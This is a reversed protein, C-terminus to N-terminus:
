VNTLMEHLRVSTAYGRTHNKPLLASDAGRQIHGGPHSQMIELM